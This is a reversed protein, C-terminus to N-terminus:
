IHCIELSYRKRMPRRILRKRELLDERKKRKKESERNLENNDSKREGRNKM